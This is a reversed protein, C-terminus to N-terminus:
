DVTRVHYKAVQELYQGNDKDRRGDASRHHAMDTYSYKAERVFESHEEFSKLPNLPNTEALRGLLNVLHDYLSVGDKGKIHKLREEIEM